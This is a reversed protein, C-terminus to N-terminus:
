FVFGRIQKRDPPHLTLVTWGTLYLASQYVCMGPGTQQASDMQFYFLASVQEGCVWRSFAKELIDLCLFPAYSM